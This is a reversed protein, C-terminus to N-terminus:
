ALAPSPGLLAGQVLLRIRRALLALLAATRGIVALLLAAELGTTGIGTGAPLVVTVAVLFRVLAIVTLAAELRRGLRHHAFHM